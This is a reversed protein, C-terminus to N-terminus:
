TSQGTHMSRPSGPRSTIDRSCIGPETLKETIGLCALNPPRVEEANDGLLVADCGSPIEIENKAGSVGEFLDVKAEESMPGFFSDLTPYNAKHFVGKLKKLPVRRYAEEWGNEGWEIGLQQCVKKMHFEQEHVTHAPTTGLTGSFMIARSFLGPPATVLHAHVSAGGSSDGALTVRSPDGSFDRIHDRVWEMACRQDYLGHNGRGHLYSFGLLNVRYNISVAVIPKGILQSEAVIGALDPLSTLETCPEKPLSGRRSLFTFWVKWRASQLASPM